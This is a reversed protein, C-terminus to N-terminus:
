FDMCRATKQQVFYLQFFFYQVVLTGPIFNSRTLCREKKLALHSGWSQHAAGGIPRRRRHDASELEVKALEDGYIQLNMEMFARQFISIPYGKKEKAYLVFRLCPFIIWSAFKMFISSRVLSCLKGDICLLKITICQTTENWESFNIRGM